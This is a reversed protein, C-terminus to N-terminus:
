SGDLDYRVVPQAVRTPMPLLPYGSSLPGDDDSAAWTVAAAVPGTGGVRVQVSAARSGALGVARTQGGRLEVTRRGLRRGDAAFSDIDVVAANRGAGSLVLRGDLRPLMPTATTGLVGASLTDAVVAFSQDTLPSGSVTRVAATVPHGASVRIGTADGDLASGPLTVQALGHAPVRLSELGSPTFAAERGLVEVRVVAAAGGPNLVTLEHRGGRPVGTLTATPRPEGAAPVIDAGAPELVDSAREHVSATVRGQSATVEVALPDAGAVLGSLPVSRVEGPALALGRGAAPALLGNPRYLGVDVVAVGPTPNALQLVGAREPTSAVGVFWWRSSPATCPAAALGRGGRTGEDFVMGVAGTLGAALRGDASATVGGAVQRGTGTWTRGVESLRAVGRGGSAVTAAADALGASEPAPMSGVAATASTPADGGPTPCALTTHAVPVSRTQGAARAAPDGGTTPAGNAALALAAAVPVALAAALDPRRM